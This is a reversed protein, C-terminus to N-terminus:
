DNLVNKTKPFNQLRVLHIIGYPTQQYPTLLTLSSLKVVFQISHIFIHSETSHM